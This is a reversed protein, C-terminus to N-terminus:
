SSGTKGEVQPPNMTSKMSWKKTEAGLWEFSSEKKASVTCMERGHPLPPVEDSQHKWSPIAAYVTDLDLKKEGLTSSQSKCFTWWCPSQFIFSAYPALPLRTYHYPFDLQFLNNTLGYLPKAVVSDAIAGKAKGRKAGVGLHNPNWPFIEPHQKPPTKKQAAVRLFSVAQVTRISWFEWLWETWYNMAKLKKIDQLIKLFFIISPNQTLFILRRWLHHNKKAPNRFCWHGWTDFESGPLGYTLDTPAWLNQLFPKDKLASAMNTRNPAPSSANGYCLIWRLSTPAHGTVLLTCLLTKQSRCTPCRGRPNSLDPFHM